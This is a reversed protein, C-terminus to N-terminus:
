QVSQGACPPLASTAAARARECLVSVEAMSAIADLRVAFPKLMELLGMGLRAALCEMVGRLAICDDQEAAIHEERDQARGRERCDERSSHEARSRELAAGLRPASAPRERRLRPARSMAAKPM